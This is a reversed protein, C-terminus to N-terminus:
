NAFPASRMTGVVHRLRGIRVKPYRHIWQGTHPEFEKRFWADMLPSTTDISLDVLACERDFEADSVLPANEIEYAYAWAAVRIRRRTEVEVPSGWTM